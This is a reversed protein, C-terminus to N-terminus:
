RPNVGDRSRRIEAYRMLGYMARASEGPTSYFPIGERRMLQFALKDGEPLATVVLPKEYKIPVSAVVEMEALLDDIRDAMREEDFSAYPNLAIIGDIYDVQAVAEVLRSWVFDKGSSSAAEDVPNTPVPAYDPLIELLRAKTAEDLEPLQLGLSACADATTVCLGGTGIIGVRNGKPLPQHVLAEAMDFIHVPESCRIVGAQRCFADFVVDAGAISATHSFAARAGATTGGGKYVIIPKTRTVERALQLFRPGEMVGELYLAIAKTDEDQALYELYDCVNLSSQNGSGVFVRFGYGKQTAANFLYEGFTGSQSIFSIAGPLPTRDFVLNLRVAASYLGLSNPGVFRIGADQTMRVLRDQLAKGEAGAEAFGATEVVMGKVGKKICDQVTSLVMPYPIAIVAMEVEGDIDLISPYVRVGFVEARNPNVPYLPGRFGTQLARYFSGGGFKSRDNSAGIIAVSHPELIVRLHEVVSESM